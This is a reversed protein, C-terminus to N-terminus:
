SECSLSFPFIVFLNELSILRFFQRWKRHPTQCAFLTHCGLHVIDWRCSGYARLKIIKFPQFNSKNPYILDNLIDWNVKITRRWLFDNISTMFFLQSHIHLSTGLSKSLKKRTFPFSSLFNKFFLNKISVFSKLSIKLKEEKVELQSIDCFISFQFVKRRTIM